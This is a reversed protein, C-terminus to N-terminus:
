SFAKTIANLLQKFADFLGRLPCIYYRGCLIGVPIRFFHKRRQLRRVRERIQEDSEAVAQIIAADDPKV